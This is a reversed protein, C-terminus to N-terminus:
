RVELSEWEGAGLVGISDSLIQKVGGLVSKRTSDVSVVSSM